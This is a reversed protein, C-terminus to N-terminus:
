QQPAPEIVPRPVEVLWLCRPSLFFLFVEDKILKLSELLYATPPSQPSFSNRIGMQLSQLFTGLNEAYAGNDPSRLMVNLPFEVVVPSTGSLIRDRIHSKEGSKWPIPQM